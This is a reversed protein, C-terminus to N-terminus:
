RRSVMRVIFSDNFTTVLPSTEFEVQRGFIYGLEFATSRGNETIREHGFLMRFDRYTMVDNVEGPQEIDWTDGGLLGSLYLRQTANIAVAVRPRPFVADFQLNPHEEPHWSFGIVPLIKYDGRDLYDVGAVWDWSDSMHLMGVAHGLYRVGDRASDEFDSYVGVSTAMDYSFWDCLTDRNQYGGVFDWLRPPLDPQVPGSLFHLGIGSTFGSHEDRDLYPTNVLDTWGFQQGEGPMYSMIGENERYVTYRRSRPQCADEVCIGGEFGDISKLSGTDIWEPLEIGESKPEPDVDIVVGPGYPHSRYSEPLM